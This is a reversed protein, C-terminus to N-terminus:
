GARPGITTSRPDRARHDGHVAVLGKPTRTSEGVVATAGLVLNEDGGLVLEQATESALTRGARHLGGQREARRLEAVRVVRRELACGEALAGRLNASERILTGAAIADATTELADGGHAGTAGLPM